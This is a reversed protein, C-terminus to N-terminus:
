APFTGGEDSKVSEEDRERIRIRGFIKARFSSPSSPFAYTRSFSNYNVLLEGRTYRHIDSYDKEDNKREEGRRKGRKRGKLSFVFLRPVSETREGLDLPFFFFFILVLNADAMADGKKKGGEEEDFCNGLESEFRDNNYIHFFSLFTSSSFAM